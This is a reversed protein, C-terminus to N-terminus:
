VLLVKFSSFVSVFFALDKTGNLFDTLFSRDQANGSNGKIIDNIIDWYKIIDSISKKLFLTFKSPNKQLCPLKDLVIIHM